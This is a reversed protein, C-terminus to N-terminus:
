AAPMIVDAIAHTLRSYPLLGTLSGAPNEVVHRHGTGQEFAVRLRGSLVVLLERAGEGKPLLLEGQVYHRCEGAEAMWALEERPVGALSTFAALRDVLDNPKPLVVPM